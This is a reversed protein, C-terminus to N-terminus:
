DGFEEEWEADERLQKRYVMRSVWISFEYLLLLPITVLIDSVIEPPTLSVAVIVLGLYALRRVRALRMPNILRLRTLFMVIIPMEFLFGFPLIINFMFGFYQSMGYAEEAGLANAINVMFQVIMPFLVYYGFAIGVLFLFFASPIFGLAARREPRRLGPSVFLWIQWLAFPITIAAAAVFAFQMYVRLADPLSFVFWKINAAAPDDKLTEVLPQALFFGAALSLVFVLLIWILRTRLEALHGVLDMEKEKDMM